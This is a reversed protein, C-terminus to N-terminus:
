TDENTLNDLLTEIKKEPEKHLGNSLDGIFVAAEFLNSLNAQSKLYPPHLIRCKYLDSPAHCVFNFCDMPRPVDEDLGPLFLMPDFVKPQSVKPILWTIVCYKECYSDQLFGRLQAFFIGGELDYTSVIDGVHYLLGDHYIANSTIISGCFDVSKSPKQKFLSRRNKSTGNKLLSVFGNGFKKKAKNKRSSIRVAPLEKGKNISNKGHVSNSCKMRKLHCFNCVLNDENLRRWMTCHNVGCDACQLKSTKHDSIMYSQSLSKECMEQKNQCHEAVDLLQFKYNEDSLLKSEDEYENEPISSTSDSDM